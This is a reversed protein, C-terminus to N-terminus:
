NDLIPEGTSKSDPPSNYKAQIILRNKRKYLILGFMLFILGNLLQINLINNTDVNATLSEFETLSIAIQTMGESILNVYATTTLIITNETTPQQTIQPSFNVAFACMITMILLIAM